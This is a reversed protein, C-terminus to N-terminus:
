RAMAAYSDKLHLAIARLVHTRTVVGVLHNAHDVVPYIKPRNSGFQQALDVIATDINVTLVGPSMCDQVAASQEKHYTGELMMALCDQESLFGVVRKKDDVVPGGILNAKLLEDVAKEIPMNLTLIAPHRNMYDGVKLSRIAM